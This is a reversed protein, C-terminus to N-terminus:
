SPTECPKTRSSCYSDTQKKRDVWEKLDAGLFQLMSNCIDEASSGAGVVIVNQGHYYHPERYYLSHTLHGRYASFDPTAPMYPKHFHGNCVVVSDYQHCSLHHTTIDRIVLTLQNHKVPLPYLTKPKIHLIEQGYHICTNLSKHRAYRELYQLVATHSPFRSYLTKDAFFDPLNPPTMLEIPLNTRLGPYIASSLPEANHRIDPPKRHSDAYRWLGGPGSQKEFVSVQIGKEQLAHATILGAYGAGIVAVHRKETYRPKM